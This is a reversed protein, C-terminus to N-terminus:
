LRVVGDKCHLYGPGPFAKLVRQWCDFRCGHCFTSLGGDGEILGLNLPMSDYSSLIAIWIILNVLLHWLRVVADEFCLYGPDLFTKLFKQQCHHVMYVFKGTFRITM